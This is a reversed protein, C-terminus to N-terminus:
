EESTRRSRAGLNSPRSVTASKKPRRIGRPGDPLPLLKTGTICEVIRLAFYTVLWLGVYLPWGLICWGIPISLWYSMGFFHSLLFPGGMFAGFFVLADLSYAVNNEASM